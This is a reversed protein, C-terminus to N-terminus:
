EPAWVSFTVSRSLPIVPLVRAISSFIFAASLFNTWSQM